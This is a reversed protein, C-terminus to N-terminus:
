LMSRFKEVCRVGVLIGDSDDLRQEDGFDVNGPDLCALCTTVVDVYRQSILGPLRERAVQTFCGKIQFAKKRPDKIALDSRSVFQENSSLIDSGPEWSIFSRWLRIELMCVGLSYIDHQMLYDREPRNGQRSPYRYIDRQWLNDSSRMSSADIRRFRELGIRYPWDHYGVQTSFCIINEPRINEHVLRCTLIFTIARALM